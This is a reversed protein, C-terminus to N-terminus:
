RQRIKRIEVSWRVEWGGGKGKSQRRGEKEGGGMSKIWHRVGRRQGGGSGGESCDIHCGYHLGTNCLLWCLPMPKTLLHLSVTCTTCSVTIYWVGWPWRPDLTAHLVHIQTIMCYVPRYSITLATPLKLPAVPLSSLPLSGHSLWSLVCVYM